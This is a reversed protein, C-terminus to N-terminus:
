ANFSQVNITCLLMNKRQSLVPTPLQIESFRYRKNNAKLFTNKVGHREIDSQKHLQVGVIYGSMDAVNLM